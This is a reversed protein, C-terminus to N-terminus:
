RSSGTAPPTAAYKEACRKMLAYAGGAEGVINLMCDANLIRLGGMVTVGRKFFPQPLLSATPGVVIRERANKATSLVTDITQNVIASGTVVVVDAEKLADASTREPAGAM